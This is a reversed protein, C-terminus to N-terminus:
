SSSSTRRRPTTTRPLTDRAKDIAAAFVTTGGEKICSITSVLQSSGNLPSTASTKYDTSLPVFLYNNSYVDYDNPPGNVTKPTACKNGNHPAFAVLGSPRLGPGHRRPLRQARGERLRAQDRRDHLAYSMSGTRDLVIMVHAPKPKGGRMSATAKAKITFTPLGLLGAFFTKTPAAEAVVVANMPDCGGLSAVCKTTVTTTVDNINAKFNKNGASSSYQRAVNEAQTANPLEQAGALAAADVSAQLSRQAYYAYGVDVVLAAFGLLVVMMLVMLVIVQGREDQPRHVQRRAQKHSVM